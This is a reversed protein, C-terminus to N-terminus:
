REIFFFLFCVLRVQGDQSDNEVLANDELDFDGNYLDREHDQNQRRVGKSRTQPTGGQNDSMTSFIKVLSGDDDKNKYSIRRVDERPVFRRLERNESLRILKPPQDVIFVPTGMLKGKIVIVNFKFTGSLELSDGPNILGDNLGEFLAWLHHTRKEVLNMELKMLTEETQFPAGVVAVVKQKDEEVRYERIRVIINAVDIGITRRLDKEEDRKNHYRGFM